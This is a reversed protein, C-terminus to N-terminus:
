MVLLFFFTGLMYTILDSATGVTPHPYDSIDMQPSTVLAHQLQTQEPWQRLFTALVRREM